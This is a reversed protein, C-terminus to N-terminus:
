MERVSALELSVETGRTTEGESHCVKMGLAKLCGSSATETASLRLAFDAVGYRELGQFGAVKKMTMARSMPELAM